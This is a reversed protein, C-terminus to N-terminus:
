REEIRIRFQKGVVLRPDAWTISVATPLTGDGTIGDSVSCTITTGNNATVNLVQDILLAM